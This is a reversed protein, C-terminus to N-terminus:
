NVSQLTLQSLEESLSEYAEEVKEIRWGHRAAVLITEDSVNEKHM